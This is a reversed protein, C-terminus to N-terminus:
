ILKLEEIFTFDGVNFGYRTSLYDRISEALAEDDTTDTTLADSVIVVDIPLFLSDISQGNTQWEINTVYYRM